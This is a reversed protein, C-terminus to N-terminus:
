KIAQRFKRVALPGLIVVAGLAWALSVYTNSGHPTGLMLGRVAEATVSVPQHSAFGQLWSPMTQVPVFIASAFTIPFILPFTM